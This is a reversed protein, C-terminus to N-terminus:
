GEIDLFTIRGERVIGVPDILETGKIVSGYSDLLPPDDAQIRRVRFLTARERLHGCWDRLGLQWAPIVTVSEVVEELTMCFALFKSM